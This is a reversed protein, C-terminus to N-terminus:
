FGRLKLYAEIEASNKQKTKNNDGVMVTPKLRSWRRTQSPRRAKLPNCILDDRLYGDIDRGTQWQEHVQEQDESRVGELVAVGAPLEGPLDCQVREVAEGPM